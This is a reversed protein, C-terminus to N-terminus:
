SEAVHEFRNSSIVYIQVAHFLFHSGEILSKRSLEKGHKLMDILM